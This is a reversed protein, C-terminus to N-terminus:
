YGHISPGIALKTLTPDNREIIRMVNYEDEDNDEGYSNDSDDDFFM